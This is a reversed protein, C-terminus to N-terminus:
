HTGPAALELTALLDDDIAVVSDVCVLVEDIDEEVSVDEDVEVADELEAEAVEVDQVDVNVGIEADAANAARFGPHFKPLVRSAM